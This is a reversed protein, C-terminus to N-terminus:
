RRARLFNNVPLDSLKPFIQPRTAAPTDGANKPRPIQEGKETSFYSKATVILIGRELNRQERYGWGAATRVEFNLSELKGSADFCSITSSSRDENAFFYAIVDTGFSEIREDSDPDAPIDAKTNYERWHGSNNSFTRPTVATPIVCPKTTVSAAYTSAMLLSCLLAVYIRRTRRAVIYVFYLHEKMAASICTWREGGWCAFRKGPAGTREPHRFSSEDRFVSHAFCEIRLFSRVSM